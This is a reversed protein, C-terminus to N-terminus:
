GSCKARQIEREAGKRVAIPANPYKRAVEGFTACAQENAGMAKLSLGLRLLGDPARTSGSYDTSLKLYQEAAERHRGRQFFTEGLYYTADPLRSSRPNKSMFSRLAQEAADYQGAKLSALGAQYDDAPVTPPPLAATVPPAPPQPVAPPAGAGVPAPPTLPAAGPNLPEIGSNGPGANQRPQGLEVPRALPDSDNELSIPGGPLITAPGPLAGGLPKPAGPAAPQAAPDFADGGAAPKLPKRPLRAPLPQAPGAALPPLAAAPPAAVPPLAAVAPQRPPEAAAGQKPAAGGKVGLEQFRFDSDAQAKRLQEEMRKQQFQMQEILGTMARLQNELRDIKVSLSAADQARVPSLGGGFAAFALCAAAVALIRIKM